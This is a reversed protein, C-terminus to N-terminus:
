HHMGPDEEVAAMGTMIEKVARQCIVHMRRASQPYTQDGPNIQTEGHDAM